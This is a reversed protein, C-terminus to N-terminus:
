AHNKEQQSHFNGPLHYKPCLRIHFRLATHAKDNIQVKTFSPTMTLDLDHEDLYSRAIAVAKVAQNVANAGIAQMEAQQNERLLGVIAGAVLASESRNAVKILKTM